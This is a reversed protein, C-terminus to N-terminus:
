PRALRRLAAEDLSASEGTGLNTITLSVPEPAPHDDQWAGAAAVLERVDDLWPGYAGVVDRFEELDHERMRLHPELDDDLTVELHLLEHLIVARRQDASFSDWFWERIWIAADLGTVDHWLRPAKIARAIADHTAREKAPDFPATRVLFAVRIGGDRLQVATEHLRPIGEVGGHRELVERAVAEIAESPVFEPEVLEPFLPATSAM